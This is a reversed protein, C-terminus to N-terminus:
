TIGHFASTHQRCSARNHWSIILVIEVQSAIFIRSPNFGVCRDARRPRSFTAGIFQLRVRRPLPGDLEPLWRFDGFLPIYRYSPSESSMAEDEFPEVIRHIVILRPSSQLGKWRSDLLREDGLWRLSNAIAGPIDYSPFLRLRQLGRLFAAASRVSPCSWFCFEKLQGTLRDGVSFRIWNEEDEETNSVKLKLYDIGSDLAVRPLNL